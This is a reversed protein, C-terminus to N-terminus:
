PAVGILIVGSVILVGSLVIRPGVADARGFALASFVIAWLAQTGNVPSVISVRGYDYASMLLVYGGAFPLGAPAFARLTEGVM